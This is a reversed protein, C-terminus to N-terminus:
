ASGMRILARLSWSALRPSDFDRLRNQFRWTREKAEPEHKEAEAVASQNLIEVPYHHSLEQNHSKLLEFIDEASYNRISAKRKIYQTQFTFATRASHRLDPSLQVYM